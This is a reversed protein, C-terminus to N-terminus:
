TTKWSPPPPCRLAATARCVTMELLDAPKERWFKLDLLNVDARHFLPYDGPARPPSLYQGPDLRKCCSTTNSSSAIGAQCFTWGTRAISHSVQTASSSSIFRKCLSPPTAIDGAAMMSVVHVKKM